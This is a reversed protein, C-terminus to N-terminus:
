ASFMTIPTTSDDVITWASGVQVRTDLDSNANVWRDHEDGADALDRQRIPSDNVLVADFFAGIADAIRTPDDVAAFSVEVTSPGSFAVFVVLDRYRDLRNDAWLRRPELETRGLYWAAHWLYGPTRSVPSDGVCPAAWPRRSYRLAFGLDHNGEAHGVLRRADPHSTRVWADVLPDSLAEDPKRQRNYAAVTDFANADLDRLTQELRALDDPHPRRCHGIRNRIKRLEAVRGQWVAQDDLLAHQVLPWQGELLDLLPGTDLYALRAHADPTQMHRQKRDGKERQEALPPLVGSWSAGHKARLEVYAVDRLWTELQWWRAYLATADSPVGQRWGAALAKRVADPLNDWANPRNQDAVVAM